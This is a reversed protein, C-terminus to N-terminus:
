VKTVQMQQYYTEFDKPEIWGTQEQMANLLGLTMATKLMEEPTKSEHLALALGAVSSDGSGVPNVATVKPIQVQYFADEVKAFAGNAGLSVLIFPIGNFLPSELLAKKADLDDSRLEQQTLAQLEELNPKIAYPKNESMLVDNLSAGSSDLIVKVGAANARQILEVYFDSPVGAPLSGSITLVRVGETLLREFQELFGIQEEKTISPGQELVETQQGEEHLIAICNRTQGEIKYFDHQIQQQDLQNEIFIGLEGGLFGTCSVEESLQRIVRAVNLGKGGATKTYNQCRNVTDLALNDLHYAIDVSPNMTVTLIM